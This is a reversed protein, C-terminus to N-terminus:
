SHKAIDKFFPMNVLCQDTVIVPKDGYCEAVRGLENSVGRGFKIKTPLQYMWM